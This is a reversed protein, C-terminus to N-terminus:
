LKVFDNNAIGLGLNRMVNFADAPRGLFYRKGDAPNVYWAEGRSETQLFIKGKQGSVFKADIPMLANRILPSYGKIIETKDPFGDGDSDIVNKDTGLADELADPLGDKDTDTGSFESLGISIKNLNANSIGIGRERMVRFADAPRGLFYMVKSQPHVYYAEGKSEVRIIIKGKVSDYLAQSAIPLAGAGSTQNAPASTPASSSLATPAASNETNAGADSIEFSDEASKVITGPTSSSTVYYFYQGDPLNELKIEHDLTKDAVGQSFYSADGQKKYYVYGSSILNATWSFKTLKKAGDRAVSPGATISLNDNVPTKFERYGSDKTVSGNVAVLRYYYVKDNKLGSLTLSHTTTAISDSVEGELSEYINEKYNIKGTAAGDTTWAVMVSTSSVPSVSIGTISFADAEEPTLYITKVIAALNNNEDTERVRGNRDIQFSLSNAGMKSFQGTFTYTFTAGPDLPSATTPYVSHTKNKITFGSFTILIDEDALGLSDTISASGANKVTVTITVDTNIIPKDASLSILDVALDEGGAAVVAAKRSVLNNDENSENLERGTDISFSLNKEGASLFKGEIIYYLYDGASIVNSYSPPTFSIKAMHFDDFQYSYSNAGASTYLKKTGANKIKVTVIVNQNAAPSAPILTISEAALDYYDAAKASNALCFFSILFFLAPLIIFTTTKNNTFKSM